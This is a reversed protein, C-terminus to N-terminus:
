FGRRERDHVQMKREELAAQAGARRQAIIRLLFLVLLVAVAITLGKVDGPSVAGLLLFFGFVAIVGLALLWFSEGIITILRM